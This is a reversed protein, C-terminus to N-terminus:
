WFWRGRSFRGMRPLGRAFPNVTPSSTDGKQQSLLSLADAEAKAVGDKADALRTPEGIARECALLGWATVLAQLGEPFQAFPAEGAVCVFDGVRLATPLAASFVMAGSTVSSAVRDVGVCRFGPRGAVFDFLMSTSFAVSSPTTGSGVVTAPTVATVTKAAFDIATIEACAAADVLRGPRARYNVRLTGNVGPTPTLILADDDLQFFFGVGNDGTFERRSIDDIPAWGGGSSLVQILTLQESAAREPISYRSTGAVIPIDIHQTLYDSRNVKLLLTVIHLRIKEDLLFLFDDASFTKGSTPLLGQLKLSRILNSALWRNAM